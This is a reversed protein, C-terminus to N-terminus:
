HWCARAAGPLLPMTCASSRISTTRSSATSPKARPEERLNDGALGILHTFWEGSVQDTMCMEDRMKGDVWLSYYEGNFLMDDFSASAKALLDSWRKADGPKDADEAIRVAARLAGIWLSAIYSPTGRMRWQDYTQLGTDRDPLGDGNTDLSETFAMAKVVHPWMGRLYEKDGTWLYDRYVMMVFQPNM